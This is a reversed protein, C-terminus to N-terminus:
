GPYQGLTVRVNQRAGDPLRVAVAITQGPNLGALVDALTGKDPTASVDIATILDGVQIGARAAPGGSRVMTVLPGGRTATATELGPYARHYNTVRGHRVLQSAIDRVTNGPIAFAIGPAQGGGLQPETATLTPMGIVQGDLDVPAGGSNGPNIAASTQIM